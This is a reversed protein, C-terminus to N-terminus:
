TPRHQGPALGAHCASQPPVGSGEGFFGRGMSPDPAGDLIDLLGIHNGPWGWGFGRGFPMEIPEATKSPSFLYPSLCVSWCVVISPGYSYAADVYTTSRHPRITLEKTAANFTGMLLPGNYRLATVSHDAHFSQATVASDFPAATPRYLRVWDLVGGIPTRM